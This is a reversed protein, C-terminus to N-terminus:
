INKWLRYDKRRGEFCLLANQAVYFHMRHARGKIIDFSAGSEIYKEPYFEAFSYNAAARKIMECTEEIENERVLEATM